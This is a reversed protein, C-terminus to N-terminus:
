SSPRSHAEGSCGVVRVLVSAGAAGSLYGTGRSCLRLRGEHITLNLGLVQSMAAGGVANTVARIPSTLGMSGDLTPGRATAGSANVKNSQQKRITFRRRFVV